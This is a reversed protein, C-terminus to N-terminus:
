RTSAATAAAWCARRAPAATTWSWRCARRAAASSSRTTSASAAATSAPAARAKACRYSRSCCPISSSWADRGAADQLHRHDLLRQHARRRGAHRRLRRRLHPVHHLRPQAGPDYGGVGLNGRPAPRRRSCGTRSRRRGAGRVGGRRHAPQVEAACGSVPRPYKAYLFTGEPEIITLPEFTGANIPVDPFIHKIALYIASKTTAIVSNMPGRCPPSVLGDHRLDLTTARRRSRRDRHDAARRGRRRQRRLGATTSATPSAPSRPACRGRPAAACDRRDGRRRHRRRLPRAARDAAGRGITLAAAQAKIDGIRQDAIRINSM